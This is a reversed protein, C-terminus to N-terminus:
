CCVPEAACGSCHVNTWETLVLLKEKELVTSFLRGVRSPSSVTKLYTYVSENESLDHNMLALTEVLPGLLNIHFTNKHCACKM